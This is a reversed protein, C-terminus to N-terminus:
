RKNNRNGQTSPRRIEHYRAGFTTNLEQTRRLITYLESLQAALTPLHEESSASFVVCTEDQLAGPTHTPMDAGVGLDWVHNDAQIGVVGVLVPLELLGDVVVLDVEERVHV